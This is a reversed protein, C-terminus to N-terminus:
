QQGNAKAYAALEQQLRAQIARGQTIESRQAPTLVAEEQRQADRIIAAATTQKVLASAKPDSQLKQLQAQAQQQITKIKQKQAATFSKQYDQGLKKAQAIEAQHQKMFAQRLGVIRTRDKMVVARQAPTLLAMMHANLALALQQAKAQKQAPTLSRNTRLAQIDQNFQTNLAVFKQNQAPTPPPAGPPLRMEVAGPTQAPACQPLAALCLPTLALVLRTLRFPKM